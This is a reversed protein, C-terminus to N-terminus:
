QTEKDGVLCLMKERKHILDNIQDTIVQLEKAESYKYGTMTELSTGLVFCIRMLTPLTALRKCTRIQSIAAPTVGIRGALLENNIGKSDQLIAMNKSIAAMINKRNFM